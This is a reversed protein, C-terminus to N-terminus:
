CEREGKNLEQLESNLDFRKLDSIIKNTEAELESFLESSNFDIDFKSLYEVGENCKDSAM